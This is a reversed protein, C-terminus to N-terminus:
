EGLESAVVSRISADILSEGTTLLWREVARDQDTRYSRNDGREIEIRGRQVRVIRDGDRVAFGRYGLNNAIHGSAAPKSSEILDHLHDGAVSDLRWTPNPRGSFIDLEVEIM